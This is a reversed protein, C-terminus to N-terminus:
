EGPVVAYLTREGPIGKLQYKGREKFLLGSGELLDRITSTVLVERPDAEAVVRAALHVGIGGLDNELIDVEGTHLGCRVEIDLATVAKTIAVACAIAQNPADFMAVFGDGTTKVEQGAHRALEERIVINHRELAALWNADGRQAAIETSAVIDTFLITTVSRQPQSPTTTKTNVPEDEIELFRYVESVFKQWAPETELLIHNRSELAVFQAGPILGALLRGEEFPVAGDDRAHLILTPVSIQAALERVDVDHMNSELKAATDPRASVRMLDNLFDIQESTADPILQATFFQRFAPNERGWGLKMLSTLLEKEERAEESPDRHSWGRAYSGLLVLHSVRDPHQAAYVVAVAGGQSMGLLAFREAGAADAATELDKVWADFSLDETDWDSLGTGREDYRVLTRHKAIAKLFHSWVPSDWDYELHSIYNAAKVLFPGDGAVAFAIRHGDPATTFRVQQEM